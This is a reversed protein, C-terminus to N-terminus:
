ITSLLDIIANDGIAVISGFEVRPRDPYIVDTEASEDSFMVQYTTKQSVLMMLYQSEPSHFTDRELYLKLM